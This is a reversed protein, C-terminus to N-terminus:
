PEDNMIDASSIVFNECFSLNPVQKKQFKIPNDQGYM